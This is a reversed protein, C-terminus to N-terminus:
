LNGSRDFNLANRMDNFFNFKHIEEKSKLKTPDIKKRTELKESDELLFNFLENVYPSERDDYYLIDTQTAVTHGTRETQIMKNFSVNSETMTGVAVGKNKNGQKVSVVQLKVPDNKPPTRKMPVLKPLPAGNLILSPKIVISTKIDGKFTHPVIELRKGDKQIYKKGTQPDVKLIIKKLKTLDIKNDPPKDIPTAQVVALGDKFGITKVNEGETQQSNGRVYCRYPCVASASVEHLEM